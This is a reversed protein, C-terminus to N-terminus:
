NNTNNDTNTKNNNANYNSNHDTFQLHLNLEKQNWFWQNMPNGCPDM